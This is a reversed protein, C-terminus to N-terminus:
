ALWPPGWGPDEAVDFFSWRNRLYQERGIGYQLFHWRRREAFARKIRFPLDEIPPAPRGLRPAERVIERKSAWIVLDVQDDPVPPIGEDVGPYWMDPDDFANCAQALEWGIVWALDQLFPHLEADSAQAKGDAPVSSIMMDDAGGGGYARFPLASVLVLLHENSSAMIASDLEGVTAIGKLGTLEALRKLTQTWLLAAVRARRGKSPFKRNLDYMGDLAAIPLDRIFTPPQATLPGEALRTTPAGSYLYDLQSAWTNM